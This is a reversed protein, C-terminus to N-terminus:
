VLKHEVAFFVLQTRDTCALKQYITSLRNRVTGEAYQTFNAIEKNNKGRSVYAIIELESETLLVEKGDLEITIDKSKGSEMEDFLIDRIEPHIVTMGNYSAIITSVLQDYSIDKLVYGDAKIKLAKIINEKNEFTTLIIVKVDKYKEKIIKTADIGNLIPMRIDMLFIDPKNEECLKIAEEGNSGVAIINIYESKNLIMKMSDRLLTQDDIIAVKIM